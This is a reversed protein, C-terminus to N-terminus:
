TKELCFLGGIVRLNDIQEHQYRSGAACRLRPLFDALYAEDAYCSPSFKLVRFGTKEFFAGYEAPRFRNGREGHRERFESVLARDESLLYELPRSFDSHDRFDVQHYGLAGKRSVRALQRFAQRPHALHELVANSVIIDVSADRIGSLKELPTCFCSIKEGSYRGRALIEDLPGVEAQSYHERVWDRLLAYFRSHYEPDWPALFRDAVIVQAGLCALMLTSGFNIGPGIELVTKGKLNPCSQSLLRVWCGGVQVAYDLDKRLTEASADRVQLNVPRAGDLRGGHRLFHALSAAAQMYHAVRLRAPNPYFIEYRRGNVRPDTNDSSSFYVYDHWFSFRGCGTTRINAHQDNCPGPLPVGDELIQASSPGNHCSLERHRTPAVYAFGLEPEINLLPARRWRSSFKV